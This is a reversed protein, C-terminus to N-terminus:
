TLTELSPLGAHERLASDSSDAVQGRYADGEPGCLWRILTAAETVANPRQQDALPTEAVGPYVTIAAIGTHELEVALSRTFHDLGAKSVSYASLAPRAITAADSSINIIRGWGASLMDALIAHTCYFAGILNIAIANAWEQPHADDVQAFPTATAANNVLIDIPGLIEIITEIADNVSALDSLSGTAGFARGGQSQILAIVGTLDCTDHELVAVAAGAEELALAIAAGLGRGGSTVLAVRGSLEQM